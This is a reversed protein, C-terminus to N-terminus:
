NKENRLAAKHIKGAPTLPLAERLVIQRPVKYDALGSQCFQIIEAETLNTGPRAVVYYRGIEGMMPDPVGVGAVMLINPHRAIYAEVEVPYVNFGGQIFMDRSRGMLTIIGRQDVVGLDGSHLWGDADLAPKAAASGVYDSIVGNGRYCLEGVEGVGLVSADHDLVRVEGNGIPKGITTMLDETSCDWPTMVFAGSTESLGYLNMMLANPMRTQLQQLLTADVNSGGIYIKRIGLWDIAQAQNGMLLLAMMTPVGGVLTPAHQAMRDLMSDAKFEPILDICGGGILMSLVGCTIGGVHNLPMALQLLDQADLRMHTAQARASALLSAHTLGAGKPRGTTGSTYIVMALDDARAADVAPAQGDAAPTKLWDALCPTRADRARDIGIVGRLMPLKPTLRDWMAFFDFDAHSSLTFVFKVDSDAVMYELESDRYRLSMGVVAVGLQAAGYFIQLWEIQNLAAIGIRDGRQLGLARLGCAIRQASAEIETFTYSRDGDIYAKADGRQVAAQSLVACITSVAQINM